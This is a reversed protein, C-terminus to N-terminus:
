PDAHANPHSNTDTNTHSNAHSNPDSGPHANADSGPHANADTDPLPHIGGSDAHRQAATGGYRGSRCLGCPIARTRGGGFCM